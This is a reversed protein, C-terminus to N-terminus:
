RRLDEVHDVDRDSPVDLTIEREVGLEPNSFRLVHPGPALELTTITEFRRTGGDVTFLAWPRAGIRVRRTPLPPPAPKISLAERRPPPAPTPAPTAPVVPAADPVVTAVAADVPPAPVTHVGAADIPVASASERALARWTGIALVVAGLVALMVPIRRTPVPASPAPEAAEPDARTEALSRETGTGHAPEGLMSELEAKETAGALPEDPVGTWVGLVWEALQRAPPEGPAAARAGVIYEDLAAFM